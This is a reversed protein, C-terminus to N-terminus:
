SYSVYEIQIQTQFLLGGMVYSPEPRVDPTRAIRVVQM